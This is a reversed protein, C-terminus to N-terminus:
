LRFGPMGSKSQRAASLPLDLKWKGREAVLVYDISESMKGLIPNQSTATVTVVATREDLDKQTTINKLTIKAERLDKVTPPVDFVFMRGVEKKDFGASRAARSSFAEDLFKVSAESMFPKVQELKGSKKAALFATITPDPPATPIPEKKPMKAWTYAALAAVILTIILVAPWRKPEKYAFQGPQYSQRFDNPIPPLGSPDRAPPAIVPPAQATMQQTQVPASQQAAPAATATPSKTLAVGELSAGCIACVEKDPWNKARCQPCLKMDM